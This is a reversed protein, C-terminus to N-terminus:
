FEYGLFLGTHWNVFFIDAEVSKNKYFDTVTRSIRSRVGVWFNSKLSYSIGCGTVLSLMVPDVNKDRYVNEGGHFTERQNIYIDGNLGAQVDATIKKFKHFLFPYVQVSIFNYSIESTIEGVINGSFDTSFFSESISKKNYQLASHLGLFRTFNNRFYIEVPSFFDTKQFESNQSYWSHYFSSNIGTSIGLENGYAQSNLVTTVLFCPLLMIRICKIKM